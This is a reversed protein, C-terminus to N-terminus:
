FINVWSERDSAEYCRIYGGMSTCDVNYYRGTAPSYVGTMYMSGTSVYREYVNEAWGASANGGRTFSGAGHVHGGYHSPAAIVVPRAAAAKAVADDVAKKTDEAAKKAQAAAKAKQRNAITAQAWTALREAGSFAGDDAELDDFADRAGTELAVVQAAAANAPAGLVTKVADLYQEDKDLADRVDRVVQEQGEPVELDRVDDKADDVARLASDVASLSPATNKGNLRGLESSVDDNADTVDELAAELGSRFTEESASGGRQLAVAGGVSTVALGVAALAIWMSLPRRRPSPPIPALPPVAHLHRETTPAPEYDTLKPATNMVSMDVQM